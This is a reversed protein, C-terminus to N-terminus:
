VPPGMLSTCRPRPIPRLCKSRTAPYRTVESAAAPTGCSIIMWITPRIAGSASSMVDPAQDRRAPLRPTRALLLAIDDRPTPALSTLVGDCLQDVSRAPDDALVQALRSIGEAIDEGPREILGDTYMALISGPALQRDTAQYPGQGMGLLPGAALDVVETRGDPGRLVPPLHGASTLRCRRSVPNYVVHLCTAGAEEGHAAVVRCLQRMIEEPPCDLHALAAITTRLQGMMASAGIGHGTVDGVVLAVEGRDLPIVDFWDGGIEATRSAPLYRYAIELGAAQPVARPLLSHQLTVAADHERTYLRANDIHVAARAALDSFLRVDAEDYPEPNEARGLVAMGLTVGRAALPVTISTHLGRDQAARLIGSPLRMQILDAPNRALLPEGRVFAAIPGMTTPVTVLDGVVFDVMAPTGADRVAVRRFRMEAPCSEPLEEGNLLSDLLDVMVRDAFQPVVLAALEAATRRIDLTTGIESAARQLLNLRANAERLATMEQVPQTVDALFSVAGLVQGNDTVRYATWAFVRCGGPEIREIFRNVVPIGESIVQDALTREILDSDMMRSAWKAEAPHRGILAEDPLGSLERYAANVRRIRLERDSFIMAVPSQRFLADLERLSLEPTDM